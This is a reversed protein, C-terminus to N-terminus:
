IDHSFHYDAKLGLDGKDLAARQEASQNNRLLVLLTSCCTKIENM